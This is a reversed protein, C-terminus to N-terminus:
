KGKKGTGSGSSKPGRKGDKVSDGGAALKPLEIAHFGANAGCGLAGKCFSGPDETFIKNDRFRMILVCRNEEDDLNPMRLANHVWEAKGEFPGCAFGNFFNLEGSVTVTNDPGAKIDFYSEVPDGTCDYEDEGERPYTCDPETESYRGFISAPPPTDAFMRKKSGPDLRIEEIRALYAAYILEPNEASARVKGLWNHQAKKVAAPDSALRLANKYVKALEEDIASLKLDACIAREIKSQAIRCDFSAAFAGGTGVGALILLALFITVSRRSSTLMPDSIRKM